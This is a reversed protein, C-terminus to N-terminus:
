AARRVALLAVDDSRAAEGEHTALLDVLGGLDVIDGGDPSTAHMWRQITDEMDQLSRDIDVGRREVLGDTFLLLVDEADLQAITSPYAADPDVGLPPGGALHIESVGEPHVRLPHPHGARAGELTGDTPDLLLYACTAFRDTELDCLVRNVRSLVTGPEVGDEALTRLAVRLQGMVASAHADHGQVDGIILAVTRDSLPVVDYWDGGVQMGRTGPLYGSYTELMPLKPLHRPLMAQQLDSAREHETDFLQARELSQTVVAAVGTYFTREGADYRRPQAFSLLCAGIVHEATGLPLVVWSRAPLEQATALGPVEPRTRRSIDEIFLPTGHRAARLMAARAPARLHELGSVVRTEGVVRMRGNELVSLVVNEAGVAPRVLHTMIRAVDRVTVAKAMARTLTFLFSDRSVDATDDREPAAQPQEGLNVLGVVQVPEGSGNLAVRGRETVQHVSGDAHVVRYDLRYVPSSAGGAASEAVDAIAAQLVPVDDPHLVDFFREGRGDFEAPDVGYIACARDDWYVHDVSFDWAFVGSQAADVAAALPGTEEAFLLALACARVLLDQADSEPPDEGDPAPGGSAGVGGDATDAGDPADLALAGLRRGEESLPLVLTSGAPGHVWRREGTRVAEAAAVDVLTDLLDPAAPFSTLRAGQVAYLGAVKAPLDAAAAGTVVELVGQPDRCRLVDLVLRALGAGQGAGM